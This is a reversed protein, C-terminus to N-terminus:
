HHAPAVDHSEVHGEVKKPIRQIRKKPNIANFTEIIYDELIPEGEVQDFLWNRVYYQNLRLAESRALEESNFSVIFFSLRKYKLAKSELHNVGTAYDSLKLAGEGRENSPSTEHLLNAMEEVTYKLEINKEKKTCALLM